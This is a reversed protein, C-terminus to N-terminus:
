IDMSLPSIIEMAIREFPEQMVPLPVLPVKQQSGKGTKSVRSLRYLFKSFRLGTTINLMKKVTKDRGLHGALLINYALRCIVQYDQKPLLLQEVIKELM